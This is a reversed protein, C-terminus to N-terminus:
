PKQFSLTVDGLHVGFKSMRAKNLMVRDDVLFMWDDFDVEYVSGGVPLKLSYRWRLANGAAEGLAQGVVDGASGSYRGGGLHRITWVRRERVGDSYEFDEELVGVDAQWRGLLRVIFRRKVQGSRDTFIGHATLPGNFYQRLDLAPKEGAYDAPVPSACGGLLMAGAGLLATRRKLTSSNM